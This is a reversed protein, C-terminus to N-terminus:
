SKSKAEGSSSNPPLVSVNPYVRSVIANLKHKTSERYVDERM